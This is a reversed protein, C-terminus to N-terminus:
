WMRVLRLVPEVRLREVLCGVRKGGFFQMASSFTFGCMLIGLEGNIMLFGGTLVPVIGRELFHIAGKASKGLTRVGSIDPSPAFCSSLLSRPLHPLWMMHGRVRGKGTGARKTPPDHTGMHKLLQRYRHFLCWRVSGTTSSEMLLCLVGPGELENAVSVLSPQVQGDYWCSDECLLKVLELEFAVRTSQLNFEYMLGACSDEGCLLKALQPEPFVEAVGNPRVSASEVHDKNGHLQKADCTDEVDAQYLECLCRTAQHNFKDFVACSDECLM